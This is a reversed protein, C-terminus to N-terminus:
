LALLTPSNLSDSSHESGSGPHIAPGCAGIEPYSFAFSSSYSGSPTDPLVPTCLPECDAPLSSYLPECDALSILDVDPVWRASHLSSLLDPLPASSDPAAVSSDAAQSPLPRGALEPLRCVPRHAALIFELKEKEKLLEAIETELSSKVGELKETETQLCDTLERRRNRCKAAALKNRERRVTRKEEDEPSLQETRGRRGTPRAAAPNSSGPRYPHQRSHPTSSLGTPQVMWQLEQRSSLATLSPVFSGSDYCLDPTSNNSAPSGLSAFSDAPSYYHPDGLSPSNSCRSLSDYDTSFAHFM